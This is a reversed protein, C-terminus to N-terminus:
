YSARTTRLKRSFAKSSRESRRRQMRRKGWSQWYAIKRKKMSRQGHRLKPRKKTLSSRSLKNRRKM